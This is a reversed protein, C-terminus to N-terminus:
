DDHLLAFGVGWITALVTAYLIISVSHPASSLDMLNILFLAFNNVANYIVPVYRRIIDILLASSATCVLVAIGHSAGHREM